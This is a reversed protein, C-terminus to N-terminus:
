LHLFKPECPKSLEDLPMCGALALILTKIQKLSIRVNKVNVTKGTLTGFKLLKYNLWIWIHNRGEFFQSPLSFSSIDFLLFFLKYHELHINYGYVHGTNLAATFNFVNSSKKQRLQGLLRHLYIFCCNLWMWYCLGFEIGPM